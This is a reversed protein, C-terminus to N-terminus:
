CVAPSLNLFASSVKRGIMCRPCVVPLTDDSYGHLATVPEGDPYNLFLSALSALAVPKLGREPIGM